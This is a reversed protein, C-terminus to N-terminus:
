SSGDLIKLYKKRLYHGTNKPDQAPFYGRNGSGLDVLWAVLYKSAFLVTSLLHTLISKFNGIGIEGTAFHAELNARSLTYRVYSVLAKKSSFESMNVDHNAEQALAIKQKSGDLLQMNKEDCLSILYAEEDEIVNNKIAEDFLESPPSPLFITWGYGSTGPLGKSKFRQKQQHSWKAIQVMFNRTEKMTKRNEGPTGCVFNGFVTMDAEMADKVRKATEDIKQMPRKMKILMKESGSEFGFLSVIVGHEYLQRYMEPDGFTPRLEACIQFTSGRDKYTKCYQDVDEKQLFMNTDHNYFGPVNYRDILFEVHDFWLDWNKRLFRSGYLHGCYTCAFPCGRATLLPFGKVPIDAFDNLYHVLEHIQDDFYEYAPWDQEQFDQKTMLTDYNTKLIKQSTQNKFSIGGISALNSGGDDISDLLQPLIYEGEAGTCVIDAETKKLLVEANGAIIGGVIITADKRRDRITETLHKIQLYNHSWGSVGFINADMNDVSEILENFSLKHMHTDTLDFSHSTKQLQRLIIPYAFPFRSIRGLPDKSEAVSILQIHAM